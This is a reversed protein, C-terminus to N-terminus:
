YMIVKGAHGLVMYESQMTSSGSVMKGGKTRDYVKEEHGRCPALEKRKRVSMRITQM